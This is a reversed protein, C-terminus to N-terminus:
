DLSLWEIKELHRNWSDDETHRTTIMSPHNENNDSAVLKDAEAQEFRKKYKARSAKLFPLTERHQKLEEELLVMRAEVQKRENIATLISHQAFVLTEDHATKEDELFKWYNTAEEQLVKHQHELVKVQNKRNKHKEKSNGLTLKLYEIEKAHKEREMALDRAYNGELLGSNNKNEGKSVGVNIECASSTTSTRASSPLVEQKSLNEIPAVLERGQQGLYLARLTEEELASGGVRILLSVYGAEEFCPALLTTLQSEHLAGPPPLKEEKAKLCAELVRLSVVDDMAWDEGGSIQEVGALDVFWINSPVNRRRTKLLSIKLIQHTRILPTQDFTAYADRSKQASKLLSLFTNMDHIEVHKFNPQVVAMETGAGIPHFNNRQKRSAKFITDSESSLLDYVFETHVQVFSVEVREERDLIDKM